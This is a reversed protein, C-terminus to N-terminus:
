KNFYLTSITPCFISFCFDNASFFIWSLSAAYFMIIFSVGGSSSNLYFLKYCFFISVFVCVVAIQAIEFLPNIKIQAIEFLPNIKNKKLIKQFLPPHTFVLFTSFNWNFNMNDFLFKSLKDINFEIFYWVPLASSVIM